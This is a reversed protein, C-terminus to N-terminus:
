DTKVFYPTELVLVTGRMSDHIDCHIAAAGPKDFIVPVPKEEKRYRGLDFRKVKSYSFVNHYMDDENPFIVAGGVMVAVLDPAFAMNKQAMVAPTRTGAKNASGFNGELYVIAAPPNTAATPVDARTGYRQNFGYSTSPVPLQVTGEITAQGYLSPEIAALFIFLQLVQRM